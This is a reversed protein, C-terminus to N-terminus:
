DVGRIQHQTTLDRTKLRGNLANTRGDSFVSTCFM